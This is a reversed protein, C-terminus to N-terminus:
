DPIRLLFREERLTKSLEGCCVAWGPFSESLSDFLRRKKHDRSHWSARRYFSQGIGDFWALNHRRRMQDRFFGAFLLIQSGGAELIKPDDSGDQFVFLDLVESLNALQVISETDFRSTLSYHALVSAVYYMEDERASGEVRTVSRLGTVFFSLAADSNVAYLEQFLDSM